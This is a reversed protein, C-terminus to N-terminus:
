RYIDNLKKIEIEIEKRLIKPQIVEIQAGYSLIIRRLEESLIVEIEFTNRNKGEKILKEVREM